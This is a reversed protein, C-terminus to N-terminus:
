APGGNRLRKIAESIQWDKVTSLHSLQTAADEATLDGLELMQKVKVSKRELWNKGARELRDRLMPSVSKDGWDNMIQKTFGM